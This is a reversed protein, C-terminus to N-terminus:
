EVVKLRIGKADKPQRAHFALQTLLSRWVGLNHPSLRRELTQGATELHQLVGLQESETLFFLSENPLGDIPVAWVDSGFDEAFLFFDPTERWNQQMVCYNLQLKKTRKEHHRDSSGVAYAHFRKLNEMLREFKVNVRIAEVTEKRVGDISIALAFPLEHLVREIKRNFMTGNTTVSCHVSSGSEILMDWIRFCEPQVFPEGGFFQLNSSVRLYPRLQEFFADGFLRPLPLLGERARIASSLDGCCMICALNCTNALAFEFRVPLGDPDPIDWDFTHIPHDDVKGATLYRACTVCAHPWRYDALKARIERMPEGNWIQDLTQTQINGVPHHRSHCCVSADGNPTFSLQLFPAYCLSKVPKPRDRRRVSELAALLDTTRKPEIRTM